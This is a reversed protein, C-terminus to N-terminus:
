KTWSKRLPVQPSFLALPSTLALSFDASGEVEAEVQAQLVKMSRPSGFAGPANNKFIVNGLLNWWGIKKVRCILPLFFMCLFYRANNM